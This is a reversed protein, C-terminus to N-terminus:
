ESSPDGRDIQDLAINGPWYTQTVQNTQTDRVALFWKRCGFKHYWWEQQIGAENRRFYYYRTRDWASADPAPRSTAEGGFRFDTM